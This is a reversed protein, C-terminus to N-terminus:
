KLNRMYAVIRRVTEDDLEPVIMLAGPKVEQPNRIWQEL